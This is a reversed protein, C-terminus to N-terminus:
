SSTYIMRKPNRELLDNNFDALNIGNSSVYIKSEPIYSPLLTKHFQSLVMIADINEISEEPFM